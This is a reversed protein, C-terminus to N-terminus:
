VVHGGVRTCEDTKGPFTGPGAVSGGYRTGEGNRHSMRIYDFSGDPRLNGYHISETVQSRNVIQAFEVADGQSEFVTTTDGLTVRGPKGLDLDKGPVEDFAIDRRAAEFEDRVFHALGENGPEKACRQGPQCPSTAASITQRAWLPISSLVTSNM